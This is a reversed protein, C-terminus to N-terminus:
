AHDILVPPPKQSHLYSLNHCRFYSRHLSEGPSPVGGQQLIRLVESPQHGDERLILVPGDVDFYVGLLQMCPVSYSGQPHRLKYVMRM